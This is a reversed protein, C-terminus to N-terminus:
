LEMKAKEMGSHLRGFDKDIEDATIYGDKNTDYDEFRSQVDGVKAKAKNFEILTLKGDNNSSFKALAEQATVSGRCGGDCNCCFISCKGVGCCPTCATHDACAFETGQGDPDPQWRCSCCVSHAVTVFALLCALLVIVKFEM